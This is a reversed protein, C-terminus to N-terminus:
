WHEANECFHRIVKKPDGRDMFISSPGRDCRTVATVRAVRWWFRMKM